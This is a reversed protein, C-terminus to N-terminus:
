SHCILVSHQPSLASAAPKSDTSAPQEDEDYHVTMPGSCAGCSVVHGCDRCMVFAAAGRRNLFLITQEGRALAADLAQQLDRSFISRNGSQLERRMDILRVPPLPLPKSHPLGDPGPEGGVRE